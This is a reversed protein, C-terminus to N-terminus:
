ILNFPFSPVQINRRKIVAVSLAAIIAIAQTSYIGPLPIETREICNGHRPHLPLLYDREEFGNIERLL